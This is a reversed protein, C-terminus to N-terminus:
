RCRPPRSSSASARPPRRGAAARRRSDSERDEVGFARILRESVPTTPTLETPPRRRRYGASCCASAPGPRPSTSSGGSRPALGAGDSEEVLEEREYLNVSRAGLRALRMGVRGEGDAGRGLNLDPDRGGPRLSRGLGAVAVVPFELGKANHITMVRVGDHDEAETAAVPEDDEGTRFAVFDLFGRLDRGENAEFERAMRMLKRVNALRLGGPGRLLIALDYGTDSVAREILEELSLRPGEARLADIRAHFLACGSAPRGRPDAGAM